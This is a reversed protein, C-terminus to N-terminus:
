RSEVSWLGIGKRDPAFQLRIRDDWWRGVHKQLARGVAVASPHASGRPAAITELAERMDDNADGAQPAPYLRSLLHKITCPTDGAVSCWRDVVIRVASAADFGAREEPARALVLDPGGAFRIAGGVLRAFPQYSALRVGADPFGHSAYARLVTLARVVLKPREALVYALLDPRKFDTRDQPRSLPTELRSMLTRRVMDETLEVRNGSVLIVTTWLLTRMQTAGLIRFEVSESTLTQEIASGGLRGKVNDLVLAQPAAIAYAGLLKEQEEEKIPWNCHAPVRGTAIAHVIDCQMTKGSGMVTADFVFAPTPGEIAARSLITYLAAITVFRSPEDAYPFDCFLDLLEEQCVKADYQSPAEPLRPYECSPLYLYGTSEDYGADQRVTGDPRYLPSETVGRLRRIKAWRDPSALMSGLITPTPQIKKRQPKPPEEGGVVALHAAKPKPYHVSVFQVRETVRPLLSPITMMRVIPTGDALRSSDSSQVVTVLEYSRQFIRDDLTGIHRALEDLIRHVDPGVAIEPKGEEIPGPPEEDGWPPEEPPPPVLKITPEALPALEELTGGANLHDTIDKGKTPEIAKCTLAEAVQMALKRGPEDADAIAIVERGSLVAIAHDRTARWAGAGGLLTTAVLGRKRLTDVDKEGEVFYVPGTSELLEPLRYLVRRVGDLKWVWGGMGDPRRQRFQKGPFRCVQCLLVGNEDRYDYTAEPDRRPLDPGHQM